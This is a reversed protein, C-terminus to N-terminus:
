RSHDAVRAGARRSREALQSRTATEARTADARLSRRCAYALAGLASLDLVANVMIATSVSMSLEKHPRNSDPNETAFAVAGVPSLFRTLAVHSDNRSATANRSDIVRHRSKGIDEPRL